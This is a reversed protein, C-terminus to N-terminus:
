KLAYYDMSKVNEDRNQQAMMEGERWAELDAPAASETLKKYSEELGKLLNMAQKMKWVLSSKMGILKKWNSHNMHDDLIENQHAMT